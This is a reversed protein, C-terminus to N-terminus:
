PACSETPQTQQAPLETRAVPPPRPPQARGWPQPQFHPNWFPASPGGGGPLHSPRPSSGHSHSLVGLLLGSPHPSHPCRLAAAPTPTPPVPPAGLRQPAAWPRARVGPRRPSARPRATRRHRHPRLPTGTGGPETGIGAASPSPAAVPAARYRRRCRLPAAVAAGGGGAGATSAGRAGPAPDPRASRLAPRPAAAAAGPIAWGRRRGRRHTRGSPGAPDAGPLPPLSPRPPSGAPPPSPSGAPSPPPPPERHRQARHPAARRPRVPPAATVAATVAPTLPAPHAAAALRRTAMAVPQFPSQAGAWSRPGGPGVWGSRHPAARHPEAPSTGMGAGCRGCCQAPLVGFGRPAAGTPGQARPAPRHPRRTHAPASSRPTGGREASGAASPSGHPCRAAGATRYRQPAADGDRPRGPSAGRAAAIRRGVRQLCFLGARSLPARSGGPLATGGEAGSRGM